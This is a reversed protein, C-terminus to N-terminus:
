KGTAADKLAKANALASAGAGKAAQTASYKGLREIQAASKLPVSYKDTGSFATAVTLHCRLSDPTTLDLLCNAGDCTSYRYLSCKFAFAQLSSLSLFWSIV